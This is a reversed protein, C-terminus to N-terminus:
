GAALRSARRNVEAAARAGDVTVAEGDHVVQRGGVWVSRVDASSGSWVLHTVVDGEDVVPAFAPGDLGVLVMDAWRGPELAGVDARWIADAAERTAMALVDWPGLRSADLSRLRALRIAMRMEDFPDLRNNSAPGDTGLGVPVGRARLDDVRAIGSAHKGNSVPCHAVGVSRRALVDIDDDTLWVAHAALLHTDLLGLRELYAPVTAGVRAELEAAEDRQEALHIQVLLRRAAALEAVGRLAEEAVAYASHPGLGVEILPHGAWEDALTAMAALQDEWTGFGAFADGVLLPPTITARMGSAVVAEAVAEPQFYMEVSTGVGNRLLEAAGHTMGWYVDDATLRGERPWMVETLWRMMPLGEGAGRLLVMPTHCHADVFAPMVLGDLRHEIAERRDPAHAAAGAWVVRGDEVDVVGPAHFSRAEDMRVLVTSHYREIM